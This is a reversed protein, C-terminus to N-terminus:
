INSQLDFHYVEVIQLNKGLKWTRSFVHTQLYECMLIYIPVCTSTCELSIHSFTLCDFYILLCIKEGINNNEALWQPTAVAQHIVSAAHSVSFIV